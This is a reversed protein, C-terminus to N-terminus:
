RCRDLIGALRSRLGDREWGGLRIRCDASGGWYGRSCRGVDNRRVCGLVGVDRRRCCGLVDRHDVDPPWPATLTFTLALATWAMLATLVSAGTLTARCFAILWRLGFAALLWSWLALASATVIATALARALAAVLAATAVAPIATRLRLGLCRGSTGRRWCWLLLLTPIVPRRAAVIEAAALFTPAILAPTAARAVVLTAVITAM